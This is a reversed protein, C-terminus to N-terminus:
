MPLAQSSQESLSNVSLSICGECVNLFNHYFSLHQYQKFRFKLKENELAKSVLIQALQCRALVLLMRKDVLVYGLRVKAFFQAFM